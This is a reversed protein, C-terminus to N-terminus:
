PVVGLTKSQIQGTPGAIAMVLAECTTIRPLVKPGSAFPTGGPVGLIRIMFDLSVVIVSM